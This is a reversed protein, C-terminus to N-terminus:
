CTHAVLIRLAETTLTVLQIRVETLDATAGRLEQRPKKNLKDKEVKDFQEVM